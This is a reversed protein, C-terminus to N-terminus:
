LSHQSQVYQSQFSYKNSSMKGHLMLGPKSMMFEQFIAIIFCVMAKNVFEISLISEFYANKWLM